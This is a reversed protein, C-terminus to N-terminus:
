LRAWPTNHESKGPATTNGSMPLNVGTRCERTEESVSGHDLLRVHEQHSQQQRHGHTSLAVVRSQRSGYGVRLLKRYGAGRDFQRCCARAGDAARDGILLTEELRRCEQGVFGLQLDFGGTKGNGALGEAEFDALFRREVDRQLHTRDASLDFDCGAVFHEAGGVRAYALDDLGRGDAFKR